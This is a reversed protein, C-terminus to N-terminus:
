YEGKPIEATVHELPEESEVGRFAPQPHPEGRRM